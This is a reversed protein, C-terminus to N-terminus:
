CQRFNPKFKSKPLQDLSTNKLYEKKNLEILMPHYVFCIIKIQLSILYLNLKFNVLNPQTYGIPVVIKSSKAAIIEM